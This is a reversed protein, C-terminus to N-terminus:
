ISEWGMEGLELFHRASSRFEGASALSYCLVVVETDLHIQQPCFYPPVNPPMKQLQSLLCKRSSPAGTFPPVRRLSSRLIATCSTRERTHHRRVKGHRRLTRLAKVFRDPQNHVGIIQGNLFVTVYRPSNMEEASVLLVDIINM